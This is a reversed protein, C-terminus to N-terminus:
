DSKDVVKLDKYASMKITPMSELAWEQLQVPLDKVIIKKNILTTKYSDILLLHLSVEELLFVMKLAADFM